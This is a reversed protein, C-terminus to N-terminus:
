KPSCPRRGNSRESSCLAETHTSPTTFGAFIVDKPEFVDIKNENESDEGLNTPEALQHSSCHLANIAYQAQNHPRNEEFM